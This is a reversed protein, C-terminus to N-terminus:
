AGGLHRMLRAQLEALRSRSVPLREGNFLVLERSGVQSIHALNVCYSNHSRCFLASPLQAEVDRLSIRFSRTGTRTHITVVHNFSEVYLIDELPLVVADRGQRLVLQPLLARRSLDYCLAEELEERRVPKFLYQLPRVSYGEKLYADSSTIFVISVNEGDRRLERALEMGSMGEMLIDLCLLDFRAGGRIQALLAQASSFVSVDCEIAQQALIDACLGRLHERMQPEDECIAVRYM